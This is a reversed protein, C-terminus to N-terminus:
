GSYTPRFETVAMEDAISFSANKFLDFAIPDKPDTPDSMAPMNGPNAAPPLSDVPPRGKRKARMKSVIDGDNRPIPPPSLHELMPQRTQHQRGRHGGAGRGLVQRPCLELHD